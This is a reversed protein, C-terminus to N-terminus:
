LMDPGELGSLRSMFDIHPAIFGHESRIMACAYVIRSTRGNGDYHPHARLMSGLLYLALNALNSRPQPDYRHRILGINTGPVTVRNAQAQDLPMRLPTQIRRCDALLKEYLFSGGGVGTYKQGLAHPPSPRLRQLIDQPGGSAERLIFDHTGRLRLELNRQVVTAIVNEIRVISAVTTAPTITNSSACIWRAAKRADTEGPVAGYTAPAEQNGPVNLLQLALNTYTNALLGNMHQVSVLVARREYDLMRKIFNLYGVTRARNMVFNGGAPVRERGAIHRWITAVTLDACAFNTDQVLREFEPQRRAFRRLELPTITVQNLTPPLRGQLFDDLSM